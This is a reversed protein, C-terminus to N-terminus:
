MSTFDLTGCPDTRPGHRKRMYMLSRGRLTEEGDQSNASAGDQVTKNHTGLGTPHTCCCSRPRSSSHSDSHSIDTWEWLHLRRSSVLFVRWPCVRSVTDAALYRPTVMWLLRPHSLCMLLMHALAFLSSPNKLCFKVIPERFISSLAYLVVSLGVRSCAELTQSM